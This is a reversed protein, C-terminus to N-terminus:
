YLDLEGARRALREVRRFALLGAVPLALAFGALPLLQPGLAVIGAHDLAARALAEMGYGLPLARAPYRLWTPLLAVPYYAGGLLMLFPSILNSFPNARQVYLGIAALAFGLGVLATLFLLAGLALAPYDPDFRVGFALRGFLLAVTAALATEAVGVLTFGGLWSVRPCPALFLAVLTGRLRERDLIEGSNYVTNFVFANAALAVVAYHLLDPRTPGYILAVIALDFLPRVVWIALYGAVGGHAFRELFLARCSAAAARLAPVLRGTPSWRETSNSTALAGRPM